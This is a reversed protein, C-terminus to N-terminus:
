TYAPRRSRRLCRMARAGAVKPEGRACLPRLQSPANELAIPVEAGIEEFCTVPNQVAELEAAAVGPIQGMEVQEAVLGEVSRGSSRGVREDEGAILTVAAQPLQEVLRARVACDPPRGTREVGALDNEIERAIRLAFARLFSYRDGVPLVHVDRQNRDVSFVVAANEGIRAVLQRAQHVARQLYGARRSEGLP